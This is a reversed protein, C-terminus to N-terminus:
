SSSGVKCHFCYPYGLKKPPFVWVYPDWLFYSYGQLTCISMFAGLLVLSKEQGRTFLLLVLIQTKSLDTETATDTTKHSPSCFSIPNHMCGEQNQVTQPNPMTIARQQAASNCKLRPSGTEAATPVLNVKSVLGM